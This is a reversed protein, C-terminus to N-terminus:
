KQGHYEDYERGCLTLLHFWFANCSLYYKFIYSPLHKEEAVMCTQSFYSMSYM